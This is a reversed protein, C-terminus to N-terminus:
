GTSISALKTPDKNSNQLGEIASTQYFNKALSAFSIASSHLRHQRVKAINTSTPTLTEGYIFFCICALSCIRGGKNILHLCLHVTVFFLPYCILIHSLMNSHLGCKWLALLTAESNLSYKVQAKKLKLRNWRYCFLLCIGRETLSRCVPDTSKRWTLSLWRIQRSSIKRLMHDTILSRRGREPEPSSEGEGWHSHLALATHLSDHPLELSSSGISFIHM